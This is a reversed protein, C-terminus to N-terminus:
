FYEGPLFSGLTRISCGLSEIESLAENTDPDSLSSEFDVYFLYHWPKGIVPRSEIKTLNIKRKAFCELIQFLSGPKEDGDGEDFRVVVCTKSAKEHIVKDNDLVIFRTYNEHHTEIDRQLVKAGYIKAAYENAIAAKTPDNWRVIDQVSGATDHNAMREVYPIREDLFEECQALAVPHSHVEKLKEIKSDKLGILSHRIRLYVEGCIWVNEHSLLDDYVQNISGFLSNEIAILALDTHGKSIDTFVENFTLRCVPEYDKGFYHKAAIDHFSGPLGQISVKM